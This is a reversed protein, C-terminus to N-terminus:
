DRRKYLRTNRFLSRPCLVSHLFTVTETSERQATKTSLLARVQLVHIREFVESDRQSMMSKMFSCSMLSPHLGAPAVRQPFAQCARDRRIQHEHTSGACDSTQHKM